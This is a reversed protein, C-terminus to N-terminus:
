PISGDIEANAIVSAVDDTPNARRAATLDIFYQEFDQVVQMFDTMEFSRTTDPDSSGFLEQTLKLMLPEDEEPVGLISMIVRLPYWIAVDKVFDCEGDMDALRDVYIRALEDVRAQLKFLRKQYADIRESLITIRDPDRREIKEITEQLTVHEYPLSEHWVLCGPNACEGPTSVPIEGISAKAVAADHRKLGEEAEDCHSNFACLIVILLVGVAWISHTTTWPQLFKRETM